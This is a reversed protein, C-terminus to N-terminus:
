VFPMEVKLGRRKSMNQTPRPGFLLLFLRFIKGHLFFTSYPIINRFRVIRRIDPDQGVYWGWSRRQRRASRVTQLLHVESMVADFCLFITSMKIELDGSIM